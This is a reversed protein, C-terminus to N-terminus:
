AAFLQLITRGVYSSAIFQYLDTVRTPSTTCQTVFDAAHLRSRIPISQPYYTESVLCPWSCVFEFMSRIFLTEM